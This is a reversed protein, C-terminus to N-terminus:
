ILYQIVMIIPIAPKVEIISAAVMSVIISSSTSSSQVIVTVLVGIMLGALPNNIIEPDFIETAKAGAILRFSSTM